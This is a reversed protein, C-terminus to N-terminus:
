AGGRTTESSRKAGQALLIPWLFACGPMILLRFRRPSDGAVPDYRTVAATVFYVAFVVGIALYVGIAILLWEIM